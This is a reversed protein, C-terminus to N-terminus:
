ILKNIEKKNRKALSLAQGAVSLGAKKRRAFRASKERKTLFRSM